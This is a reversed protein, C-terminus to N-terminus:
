CVVVHEFFVLLVCSFIIKYRCQAANLHDCISWFDLKKNTKAKDVEIDMVAWYYMIDGKPQERIAKELVREALPSM